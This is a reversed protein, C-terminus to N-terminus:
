LEKREKWAMLLTAEDAYEIDSGMPLGQAIRTVKIGLPKLLKALYMSTADGEVTPSLTLIVEEINGASIRSLLEKVTLDDPSIGDMPSILGHLVHYVGQYEGTKEMAILEKPSKVVMVTSQDRKANKCISCLDEASINQCTKCYRVKAKANLLASSFDKTFEDPQMLVYYALRQATKKGIGPLKNFQETLVTLPEFIEAM